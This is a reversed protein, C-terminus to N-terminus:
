LAPCTFATADCGCLSACESRNVALLAGYDIHLGYTTNAGQVWKAVYDATMKPNYYPNNGTAGDSVGPLWVCVRRRACVVCAAFSPTVCGAGCGASVVVAAAGCACWACVSALAGRATCRLTCGPFSWPLGYLKIAPNRAKAEQMLWWEYGREYNPTETATHM